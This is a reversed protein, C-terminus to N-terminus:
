SRTGRARRSLVARLVRLGENSRHLAQRMGEGGSPDTQALVDLIGTQRRLEGATLPKIGDTDGDLYRKVDADTGDLLQHIGLAAVASREAWSRLDLLTYTAPASDAAPLALAAVEEDDGPFDLLQACASRVSFLWAEPDRGLALWAPRLLDATSSAPFCRELCATGAAALSREDARGLLEVLSPSM